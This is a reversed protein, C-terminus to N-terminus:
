NCDFSRTRSCKAVCSDCVFGEFADRALGLGAHESCYPKNCTNCKPLNLWCELCLNHECAAEVEEVEDICKGCDVCRTICYSCGKCFNRKRTCDDKSCSFVQRVQNCIPCIDVDIPSDNKEHNSSILHNPNPSKNNKKLNKTLISRLTELHHHNIKYLGNVKLSTLYPGHNSLTKVMTIIGDPTLGSCGPVHLKRIFPNQQIVQQLGDDTIKVSKNIVLSLLRGNAKSAYKILTQDSLRHSLVCDVKIHIWPLVDNFVGDRMSTCTESISLLQLLPLYTLTLFLAEHPSRIERHNQTKHEINNPM